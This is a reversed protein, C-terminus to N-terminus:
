LHFKWKKNFSPELLRKRKNVCSICSCGKELPHSGKSVALECSADIMRFIIKRENAQKISLNNYNTRNKIM